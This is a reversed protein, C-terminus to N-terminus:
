TSDGFRCKALFKQIKVRASTLNPDTDQTPIPMCDLMKEAEDESIQVVFEEFQDSQNEEPELKIYLNDKACGQAVMNKRVANSELNTLAITGREM